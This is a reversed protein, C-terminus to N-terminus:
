LTDLLVRIAEVNRQPDTALDIHYCPLRRTLEASLRYNEAEAGPLWIVTSPGLHRFAERAPAPRVTAREQHAVGPLLLAKIPFADALHGDYTPSLFVLGKGGKSVEDWGALLPRFHPLRDLMDAKLKASSFLVCARPDPALRVLCKDDSLLRLGEQALCSLATTSKGSGSGGILLVGGSEAGVAAAHIIQWGTEVLAWHFLTQLPAAREYISLATADAVWWLGRRAARDYAFIQGALPDHMLAIPGAYAVARQGYRRYAGLSFPLPPPDVGTSAGDWLDFTISPAGPPGHALVRALAPLLAGELSAGVMTLALDLDAVRVRRVLPPWAECVRAHAGGLRVVYDALSQHHEDLNTM